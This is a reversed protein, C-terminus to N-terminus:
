KNEEVDYSKSEFNYYLTYETNDKTYQIEAKEPIVLDSHLVNKSGWGGFYYCEVKESTDGPNLTETSTGYLSIKNGLQEDSKILKKMYDDDFGQAKQIDSYFQEKEEKTVSPKEIFRLEFSNIVYKSNNTYQLLVYNDGRLTGSGFNWEIEEISIDPVIKFDNEPRIVAVEM